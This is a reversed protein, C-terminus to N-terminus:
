LLQGQSPSTSREMAILKAKLDLGGSYGHLDGKSGLVRHCPVVIPLPNAGNAAGVARVATPRGIQKAIDGYTKWEGYPIAAVERYVLQQFDTARLDLPLDFVERKGELFECLQVAARQNAEYGAQVTTEPAHRRQWGMLGSGNERPLTVYALGRETSALTLKGIPSDIGATYLTCPSDADNERAQKPRKDMSRIVVGM